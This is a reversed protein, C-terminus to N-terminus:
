EVIPVPCSSLTQCINKVTLMPQSTGSQGTPLAPCFVTIFQSHPKCTTGDLHLTTENGEKDEKERIAEPNIISASAAADEDAWVSHHPDSDAPNMNALKKLKAM